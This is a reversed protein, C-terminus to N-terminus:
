KEQVGLEQEFLKTIKKLYKEPQKFGYCIDRVLEFRDKDKWDDHIEELISDLNVSAFCNISTKAM